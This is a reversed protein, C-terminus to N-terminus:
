QKIENFNILFLEFGFYPDMEGAKIKYDLRYLYDIINILQQKNIFILNKATKNIRFPKTSLKEAIKEFSYHQNILYNVMTMFRFQTALLSILRVPEEKNTRLDYYIKLASGIRNKILSEVILFANDELRNVVLLKVDDIHIDKKYLSLKNTESMFKSVDDGCRDILENLADISIEAGRKTFLAKGMQKLMDETIPQQQIIKGKEKILKVIESKSNIDKGELFFILDTYESPNILYNKLANYDQEKDITNKEKENTLFYPENVVVVKHDGLLPLSRCSFVIDQVLTLRGSYKEVNFDDAELGNLCDNILKKLTKKIVPLQHGYVLYIM